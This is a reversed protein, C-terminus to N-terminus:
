VHLRLATLRDPPAGGHWACVDVADMEVIFAVAAPEGQHQRISQAAVGAHPGPLDLRKRPVIAQNQPIRTAMPLGLTRGLTLLVAHRDRRLIQPAEEIM